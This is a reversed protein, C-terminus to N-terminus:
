GSSSIPGAGFRQCVSNGTLLIRHREVESVTFIIILILRELHVSHWIQMSIQQQRCKPSFVVFRDRM